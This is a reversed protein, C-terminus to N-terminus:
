GKNIAAKVAAFSAQMAKQLEEKKLGQTIAARNEFSQYWVDVQAQEVASAEGALVKDILKYIKPEKM